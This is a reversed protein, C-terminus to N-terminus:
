GDIHAGELEAASERGELEEDSLEIADLLGTAISPPQGAPREAADADDLVWWDGLTEGNVELGKVLGAAESRKALRALLLAREDLGARLGRTLQNRLSQSQPLRKALDRLDAVAGGDGAEDLLRYPKRTLRICRQRDDGDLFVLRRRRRDAPADLLGEHVVEFDVCAPAPEGSREGLLARGRGKASALLSEAYEIATHLPTSTGCYLIGASISLRGGTALWLGNKLGVAEHRVRDDVETSLRDFRKALDAVFQMAEAVHCIIKVDDGGMLLPRVPVVVPGTRRGGGDGNRRERYAGLNDEQKSAERPAWRRVAGEVAAKTSEQTVECLASGVHSTWAQLEASGEGYAHSAARFQAGIDNGDMCIVAFRNSPGLPSRGEGGRDEKVKDLDHFFSWDTQGIGFEPGLDLDEFYAEEFHRSGSGPGRRARQEYLESTEGEAAACYGSGAACPYATLAEGGPLYPYLEDACHAAKSYDGDIGFRVDLGEEGAKGRITDRLKSVAEDGEVAFAGKGGGAYILKVGPMRSELQPVFRRDFVDVTASGSIISALKPTRFIFDQIGRIDYCLYTM